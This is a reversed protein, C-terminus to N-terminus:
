LSYYSMSQGMINICRQRKSEKLQHTVSYCMDSGDKTCDNTFIELMRDFAIEKLNKKYANLHWNKAKISHIRPKVFRLYGEGQNSGKWLNIMPGFLHM